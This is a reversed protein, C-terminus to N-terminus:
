KATERINITFPVILIQKALNPFDNIAIFDQNFPILKQDFSSIYAFLKLIWGNIHLHFFM